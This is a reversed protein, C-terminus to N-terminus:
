FPGHYGDTTAIFTGHSLRHLDRRITGLVNHIWKRPSSYCLAVFQSAWVVSIKYRVTRSAPPRLDLHQCPWAIKSFELSPDTGPTEKLKQYNRPKHCCLELGWMSNKRLTHKHGAKGLCRDHQTLPGNSELIFEDQNTVDAFVRNGFLPVNQPTHTLTEAYSNQPPM